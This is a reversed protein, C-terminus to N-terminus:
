TTLTRLLSLYALSSKLVSCFSGLSLEVLKGATLKTSNNAVAFILILGLAKRRPLRYWDIMYASLSINKCQESLIEGIYCLIFINFTFSILLTCYTLTGITESQEWETLLYYGLFCINMTCGVLEVFCIENLLEEIQSIFGLIYLHHEVVDGLQEKRSDLNKERELGDVLRQLRAVLIGFQGCVHMVFVAALSCAGVTVSYMVFGSLCQMLQVIEFSPSTRPDLLGRYIPFAQSRVTENDIIETRRTCLPMVTTYFFGGSYMFGVCFTALSRGIRANERMIRRDEEGRSHARYWDARIDEICKGIKAGRSVLIYYKIAAMVCFSLPGIMKIKTDLDGTELITCLACPVLLFSILFSSILALMISSIKEGTTVCLSIPWVGIPKMLWRNIQVSYMLDEDWTPPSAHAVM